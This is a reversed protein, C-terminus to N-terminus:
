HVAALAPGAQLCVRGVAAIVSAAPLTRLCLAGLRYTNPLPEQRCVMLCGSCAEYDPDHVVELQGFGLSAPYPFFYGLNSAHSVCVTPKELCTAIHTLGSDLGVFARAQAIVGACEVLSTRGCLDVVNDARLAASRAAAGASGLVAVAREAAERRGPSAVVLAKTMGLTDAEEALTGVAGVGLVIRVPNPMYTLAADQSM